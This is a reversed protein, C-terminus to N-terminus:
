LRLKFGEHSAVFGLRDYFRHAELRTKDTTLQVLTCGRRRAEAVAWGLMAAGLGQRRYSSHVRVAEVQTRSTGRRALGPIFTLQMTGVVARDAIVVVLLQAPDADILASARRYPALDEDDTVGDRTSGLPDDALLAVIEELDALVARRVEVVSSSLTLVALPTSVRSTEGVPQGCSWGTRTRRPQRAM